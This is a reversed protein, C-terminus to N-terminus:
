SARVASEHLTRHVFQVCIAGEGVASAIRKVNGARADGVAYVGPLSTELLHPDRSLPWRAAALEEAHIDPGTRVFGKDDMVVCGRLWSTNPVAGTMAFVHGIDDAVAAGDGTRWSVRQLRQQGELSVLKTRVHLTINPNDEIRRILYRSMSEALGEARVMVHVHRCSGALFVAAQGASNGGGVVIVSEGRCLKAELHTAAYYVGAGVFQQLNALDLERYQAGTAIIVNLARITHGDSLEIGYPRQDCHLRMAHRAVSVSAGFKQSQVFARGALAQGSIGTPFGLYNEIRSSTGAQGGPATSEVVLVDLGESAAYVAASLGAPGAGIVVVDRVKADDFQPNMELEAAVEAITPNRMVTGDCTILVPVEDVGVHFRDLLSQVRPDTDVDVNVFPYNNRTLFKVLALTAASHSSGLLMVSNNEAAVLGMRRLIFARMMIESLEADTQILDRLRDEEISIIEGPQRVRVRVFGSVGRLTSLEGAFDGPLLPVLLSEGPRSPLLVELSGSLVAILRRHQDGPQILVDGAQTRLRQGYSEMRALQAATLKPFMQDRRSEYLSNTTSAVRASTGADQDGEVEPAGVSM